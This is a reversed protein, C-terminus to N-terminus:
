YPGLHRIEESDVWLHTRKNYMWRKESPESRSSISFSDDGPFSFRVRKPQQRQGEGITYTYTEQSRIRNVISVPPAEEEDQVVDGELNRPIFRKLKNARLYDIVIDNLRVNKFPEWSDWRSSFGKWHIHVELNSSKNKDSISGGATQKFRHALVRDVSFEHIRDRLAVDSLTLSTEEDSHHFLKLDTLHRKTVGGDVFNQLVYTNGSNTINTVRFPGEWKPHLKTPPKAGLGTDHYQALVISGIPFVTLEGQKLRKELATQDHELLHKQALAIVTSQNTILTDVYQRYALENSNGDVEPSGEKEPLKTLNPPFFHRDLDVANGFVIQAPSVGISSVVHSNMIRQVLPLLDSWITVLRKEFILDRLRRLVEKNAREVMSNEEHSYALTIYHQTGVVDM